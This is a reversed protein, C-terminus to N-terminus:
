VLVASLPPVVGRGVCVWVRWPVSPPHECNDPLVVRLALCGPGSQSVYAMSRVDMVAALVCVCVGAVADCCLTALSVRTPSM